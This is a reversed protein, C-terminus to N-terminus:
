LVFRKIGKKIVSVNFNILFGLRKGTLKLHSLLQAEWVPNVEDVAKLECIVLDDVLVDLRLREDFIIGDYNHSSQSSAAPSLGKEFARPLLM